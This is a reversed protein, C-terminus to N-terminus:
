SISSAQLFISFSALFLVSRPSRSHMGRYEVRGGAWCCRINPGLGGVFSPFTPRFTITEVFIASVESVISPTTNTISGPKLLCFTKLGLVLSSDKNTEGM